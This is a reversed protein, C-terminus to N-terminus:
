VMLIVAAGYITAVTVGFVMCYWLM